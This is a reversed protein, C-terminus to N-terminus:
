PLSKLKELADILEDGTITFFQQKESHYITVSAMGLENVVLTFGNHSIALSDQTVLFKSALIDLKTEGTELLKLMNAFQELTM